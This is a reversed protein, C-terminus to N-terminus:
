IRIIHNYPPCCIFLFSRMSSKSFFPQYRFRFPPFWSIYVFPVSASVIGRWVSILSFKAFAIMLRRPSFYAGGREM